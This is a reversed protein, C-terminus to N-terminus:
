QRVVVTKGTAIDDMARGMEEPSPNILRKAGPKAGGNGNGADRTGGAGSGSSEGFLYSDTKSLHQLWDGTTLDKHPETPHKVGKRPVIEEDRLEFQTEAERLVHRLASPAVGAKTAEAAIMDKFKAQVVRQQAEQERKEAAALKEILPKTAAELKRDIQTQIDDPSKVGKKRLEKVEDDLERYKDPDIGEYKTKLAKLEENEKMVEVNKDRFEAIKQKLALAEDAAVVGEVQVVFKGDKEVYHGRVAEPLADYDNKTLVAKLAM